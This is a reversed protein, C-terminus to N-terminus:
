SATGCHQAKLLARFLVESLGSSYEPEGGEGARMERSESSRLVKGLEVTCYLYNWIAYYTSATVGRYHQCQTESRWLLGTVINDYVSTVARTWPHLPSWCQSGCLVEEKDSAASRTPDVVWWRGCSLFILHFIQSLFLEYVKPQTNSGTAHQFRVSAHAPAHIVRRGLPDM